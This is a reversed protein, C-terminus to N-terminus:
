YRITGKGRGMRVGKPKGTIPRDPFTRQWIRARKRSKRKGVTRVIIRRALELQKPNLFGHQLAKLGCFGHHVKTPYINRQLGTIPQKHYRKFKLEPALFNTGRM